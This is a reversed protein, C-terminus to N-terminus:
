QQWNISSFISFRRVLLSSSDCLAVGELRQARSTAEHTGLRSCPPASRPSPALPLVASIAYVTWHFRVLQHAIPPLNAVEIVSSQSIFPFRSNARLSSCMWVSYLSDRSKVTTYVANGTSTVFRKGSQRTCSM